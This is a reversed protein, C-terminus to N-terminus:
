SAKSNELTPWAWADPAAKQWEHASFWKRRPANVGTDVFVESYDGNWALLRGIQRGSATRRVVIERQEYQARPMGIM